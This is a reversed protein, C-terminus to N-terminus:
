RKDRNFNIDATRWLVFLQNGNFPWAGNVNWIMQVFNVHMRVGMPISLFAPKISTSHLAIILLNWCKCFSLILSSALHVISAFVTHTNHHFGRPPRRKAILFPAWIEPRAHLFFCEWDADWMKYFFTHLNNVKSFHPNPISISLRTILVQISWKAQTLSISRGRSIAVTLSLSIERESKRMNKVASARADQQFLSAPPARTHMIM